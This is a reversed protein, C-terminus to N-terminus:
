RVEQPLRQAAGRNDRGSPSSRQAPSPTGFNKEWVNNANQKYEDVLNQYQDTEKFEDISGKFKRLGSAVKQTFEAETRLLAIKARITKPTDKITLGAQGFLSREFDSVQGQGQALRSIQLQVNAMQSALTQYKAIEEPKASIQTFVNRIEPLGVTFGPMGIGNEILKAIAPWLGEKEFIGTYLASKPDSALKDILSYTTLAQRAMSGKQMAEKRDAEEAKARETAREKMGAASTEIEQISQRRGETTESPKKEGPKTEEMEAFPGRMVKDAIQKYKDAKGEAAAAALQAATGPDVKFTGEYPKKNRVDFIQIEVPPGSRNVYQIGAGLDIVNGQSEIYRKKELEARKLQAESLDMKGELFASKMFSDSALFAPNPQSFPIAAYKSPDKLASVPEGSPLAGTTSTKPQQTLAGSVPPQGGPAPLAGSVSPDSLFMRARQKRRELELGQGALGLQAQAIEREEKEEQMQAERVNKAAMGLSEGFGGTQTPALFGSALALMQPDFMRNQRAMLAREMRELAAQYNMNQKMTEPDSGPLYGVTEKAM